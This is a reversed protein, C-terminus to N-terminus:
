AYNFLPNVPKNFAIPMGAEISQKKLSDTLNMHWMNLEQKKNYFSENFGYDDELFHKIFKSKSEPKLKESPLHDNDRLWLEFESKLYEDNRIVDEADIFSNVNKLATKTYDFNGKEKSFLEKANENLIKFEVEAGHKKGIKKLSKNFIKDYMEGLGEGGVQLDLGTYELRNTGEYVAKQLKTYKEIDKKSISAITKYMAINAGAPVDYKKSLEQSFNEFEQKIFNFNKFINKEEIDNNIKKALDKGIHEELQNPYIHLDIENGAVVHIKGEAKDSANVQISDIHKSLDYRDKQINGGTMAIADFGNEAAYRVLRKLVVDQWNNKFPLNPTSFNVEKPIIKDIEAMVEKVKSNSFLIDANYNKGNEKKLTEEISTLEKILEAHEANVPVGKFGKEKGKHVWDSQLEEIFLTKQGDIIRTNFRTHAFINKGRYHGDTFNADMNPLAFTMEKYDTYDGETILDKSNSYSTENQFDSKTIDLQSELYGQLAVDRQSRYEFLPRTDGDKRLQNAVVWKEFDEAVQPYTGNDINEMLDLVSSENQFGLKELKESGKSKDSLIVEKVETSLDNMRAFDLIEEKTVSKKDALFDKMGIWDLEDQNVGSNNIMGIWQDGSAKNMKADEISKTIKSYFPPAKESLLGDEIAEEELDKNYLINPIEIEVPPFGTHTPIDIEPVTGGTTQPIDIEPQDGGTSYDDINPEYIPTSLINRKKWEELDIEEPPDPSYIVGQPTYITAKNIHNDIISQASDKALLSNSNDIINPAQSMLGMTAMPLAFPLINSIQSLNNNAQSGETGAYNGIGLQASQPNLFPNIEIVKNQLLM